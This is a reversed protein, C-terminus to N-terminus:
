IELALQIVQYYLCLATVVDAHSSLSETQNLEDSSYVSGLEPGKVWM